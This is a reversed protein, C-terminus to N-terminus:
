ILNLEQNEIISENSGLPFQHHDNFNRSFDIKQYRMKLACPM